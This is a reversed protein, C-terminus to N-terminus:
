KIIGHLEEFSNIIYTPRLLKSTKEFDECWSIETYALCSDYELDNAIEIDREMDGILMIENPHSKLEKMANVCRTEKDLSHQNAGAVLNFYSSLGHIYLIRETVQQLSNTIVATKINKQKLQVFVEKAGQIVEIERILDDAENLYFEGLKDFLEDYREDPIKLNDFISKTSPGIANEVAKMEVAQDYKNFFRYYAKSHFNRSDIFTGDMDFFICNYKRM